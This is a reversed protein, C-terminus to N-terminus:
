EGNLRVQKVWRDLLKGKEEKTFYPRSKFIAVNKGAFLQYSLTAPNTTLFYFSHQTLAIQAEDTLLWDAFQEAAHVDRDEARFAVGTGFVVASTGDTPYLVRIPYDDRVYRLTESLVAISLDVEGMGAQRVPTHLYRSYQIIKPQISRWIDFAQQEGYEAIMSYLLNSAADAAMFDTTGIRIDRQQILRQWSNPLDLHTRLYDQNVAFVMPDYWVGTWYGSEHRFSEAVQDIKESVYPVLYGAAAARDLTEREALVLSIKGNETSQAQEKLRKLIQESDLQIFNVRVGYETEYAESLALAAETPLSTYATIERMSRREAGRSHSSLYVSVLAILTALFITTMVLLSDRRM